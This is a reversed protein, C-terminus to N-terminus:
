GLRRLRRWAFVSVALSCVAMAVLKAVDGLARDRLAPDPRQVRQRHMWTGALEDNVMVPLRAPPAGGQQELAALSTPPRAVFGDLAVRAESGDALRGYAFYRGAGGRRPSAVREVTLTAPVFGDAALALTIRAALPIITVFAIGAGLIAAAYWGAAAWSGTNRQWPLGRARRTRMGM